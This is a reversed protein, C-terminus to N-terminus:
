HSGYPTGDYRMWRSYKEGPSFLYRKAGGSGEASHYWLKVVPRFQHRHAVIECGDLTNQFCEGRIRHKNWVPYIPFDDNSDPISPRDPGTESYELCAQEVQGGAEVSFGFDRKKM